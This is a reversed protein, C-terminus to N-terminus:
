VGKMLRYNKGPGVISVVGGLKCREYIRSGIAEDMQLLDHISKETSIITLLNENLYRSNLLEFALNLDGATVGGGKFLDDIYLVKVRKYPAIIDEYDPENVMAKLRVSDERWRFYRVPLGKQLLQGCIATCLHTKGCGSSGSMLFWGRQHQLYKTAAAKAEVQWPQSTTYADLTYVDLTSALGSRRINAMSRRAAMCACEKIVLHGDQVIAITGRNLCSACDVGTLNGPTKNYLAARRINSEEVSELPLDESILEMSNLLTQNIPTLM